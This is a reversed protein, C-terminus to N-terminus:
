EEEPKEYEYGSPESEETVEEAAAEEEADTAEATEEAQEMDESIEEAADEAGFNPADIDFLVESCDECEISINVIEDDGYGVCSVAHGVHPSLKEASCYFTNEPSTASSLVVRNSQTRVTYNGMAETVNMTEGIFQRLRGFPTTPEHAPDITEGEFEGSADPTGDEADTPTDEEGEAFGSESAAPLGSAGEYEGTYNNNAFDDPTDEGDFLTAQGDDIDRCFYRGSARDYVLEINGSFSGSKKEKRQIVYAVTHDFKPKTVERTQRGGAVTYDPASDDTLTIKVTMRIEGTKQETEIMGAMVDRLTIDFDECLSNFAEGRLSLSYDKSM